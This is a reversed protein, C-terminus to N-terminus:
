VDDDIKAHSRYMGKDKPPTMYDGYLLRLEGDYGGPVPFMRGRIPFMKTTEYWKEPFFKQYPLSYTSPFRWGTTQNAWKTVIHEWQRYLWKASFPAGLFRLVTVQAKQLLTYKEDHICYRKSMAMGYIIKSKFLFLKQSIPNSPARELITVDIGVRNQLNRYKRDEETEPRQPLREDQIRSIFDYFYPSFQDPTVFRMHEPLSDEMAKKFSPYDERLVKIDVDDDWPIFDGERVAGIATGGDLFYRVQKSNCIDDVICLIEFLQDHLEDITM